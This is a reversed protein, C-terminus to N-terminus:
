KTPTSIIVHSFAFAFTEHAFIFGTLRLTFNSWVFEFGGEVMTTRPTFDREM